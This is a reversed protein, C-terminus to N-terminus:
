DSMNETAIMMEVLSTTEYTMNKSDEIFKWLPNLEDKPLNSEM